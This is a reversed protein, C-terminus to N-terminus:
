YANDSRIVSFITLMLIQIDLLISWNKIYDLDHSIREKMKEDTETGGRCGNIQALGTIGPMVKHRNAYKQVRKEFESNLKLPHPRPGVLSMEGRIVNILQPLEDLSARRLARGVRTVRADNRSAQRFSSADETVTMTRFKLISIVRQNYGHRLQRYLVPGPSELKIALAILAMLPSLLVLLIAGGAYDLVAKAIHDWESMPKRQMELLGLKGMYAIRPRQLKLAIQDPCLYIECPLEDLADMVELIRTAASAPLTIIIRDLRHERGFKLISDLGGSIPANDGERRESSARDDFMGILEAGIDEELLYDRVQQGVAGAGYIAVSQRFFGSEIRRSMWAAVLWREGALAAFALAFWLLLWGRSYTHAIKFLFGLAILIFFAMALGLAVGAISGRFNRIKEESYLNRAHLVGYSLVAGLLAANMYQWVSQSAHLVMDVYAIKAVWGCALVLLVEFLAVLDCFLKRSIFEAREGQGTRGASRPRPLTTDTQSM